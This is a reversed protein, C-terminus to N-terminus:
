RERKCVRTFTECAVGTCTAYFQEVNGAEHECGDQKQRESSSGQMERTQRVLLRQQEQVRVHLKLLGCM